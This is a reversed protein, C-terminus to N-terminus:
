RFYTGQNMRYLMDMRDIEVVELFHEPNRGNIEVIVVKGDWKERCNLIERVM